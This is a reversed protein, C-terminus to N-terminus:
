KLISNVTSSDYGKETLKEKLKEKGRSIRSKVTGIKIGLKKAIDAQATLDKKYKKDSSMEEPSIEGESLFFLEIVTKQEEPLENLCSMLADILMDMDARDELSRGSDPIFDQKELGGAQEIKENLSEITIKREKGQKEENGNDTDTEKEEKNGSFDMGKGGHASEEKTFDTITNNIVMDIYAWLTGKHEYSWLQNHVKTFAETCCETRANCDSGKMCSNIKKMAKDQYANALVEFSVGMKKKNVLDGTAQKVLQLIVMENDRTVEDILGDHAWANGKEALGLVRNFSTKANNITEAQEDDMTLGKKLVAVSLEKQHLSSLAGNRAEDFLNELVEEAAKCAKANGTEVDSLGKGAKLWEDAKKLLNSDIESKYQGAEPLLKECSEYDCKKVADYLGAVLRHAEDSLKNYKLYDLLEKGLNDEGNDLWRIFLKEGAYSGAM